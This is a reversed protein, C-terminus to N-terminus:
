SSLAIESVFSDDIYRLTNPGSFPLAHLEAIELRRRYLADKGEYM